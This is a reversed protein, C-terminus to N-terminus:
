RRSPMLRVTLHNDKWELVAKKANLYAGPLDIKLRVLPEGSLRQIDLSRAIEEPTISGALQFRIRKKERDHLMPTAETQGFEYGPIITAGVPIMTYITRNEDVASLGFPTYRIGMPIAGLSSYDISFLTNSGYEIGDLLALVHKRGESELIIKRDVLADYSPDSKAEILKRDMEDYSANIAAQALGTLTTNPEFIKEHWGPSLKDLLVAIAMGSYYLRMRLPAAGYPDNNVNMEGRMHKVMVEVLGDRFVSFGKYGHFGQVWKMADAANRHEMALSLKYEVYKALGENFENGDEYAISEESLNYRRDMRVALWRVAAERCAEGTKARLVDALAEGELAFGVNNTFSLLPYAALAGEDAGKQPAMNRQYVHFAEHAIMAMQDYPDSMLQEYSGPPFKEKVPLPSNMISSINNWLNSLSDAVVLTEIGNVATSTNQGDLEFVSSGTRVFIKGYSFSIPGDYPEFDGPPKPHNILVDQRGPLYFLIPTKIINWGPWVENQPSSLASWVEAAEAILRPDILLDSLESDAGSLLSDTSFLLCAM